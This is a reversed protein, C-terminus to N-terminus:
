VQGIRAFILFPKTGFIQTVQPNGKSHRL